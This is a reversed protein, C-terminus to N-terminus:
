GRAAVPRALAVLLALGSALAVLWLLWDYAYLRAAGRQLVPGIVNSYGVAMLRGFDPEVIFAAIASGILFLLLSLVLLNRRTTRWNAVMTMVLLVLTINPVIQWFSSSDYGYEGEFMAFSRPPAAIATRVIVVTAFLQAGIQTFRSAIAATLSINKFALRRLTCASSGRQDQIHPANSSSSRIALPQKM